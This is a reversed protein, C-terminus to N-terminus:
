DLVANLFDRLAVAEEKTLTLAAARTVYRGRESSNDPVATEEVDVRVWGAVKHGSFSAVAFGQAPAVRWSPTVNRHHVRLKVLSRDVTHKPANTM